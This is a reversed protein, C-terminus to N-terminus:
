LYKRRRCSSCEGYGYERSIPKNYNIIPPGETLGTALRSKNKEKQNLVAWKRLSSLESESLHM